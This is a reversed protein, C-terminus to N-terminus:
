HVVVLKGYALCSPGSTLTCTYYGEPLIATNINLSGEGDPIEIETSIQSLINFISLKKHNKYLFGSLDAKASERAPNPYMSLKCATGQLLYEIGTHYLTDCASGELRGTRYHPFNPFDTCLHPMSFKHQVFSCAQGALDPHEIVHIYPTNSTILITSDPALQMIQFIVKGLYYYTSDWVGILTKSAPIDNAELDFQFLQYATNYYLFRSNPSFALTGGNDYYPTLVFGLDQYDYLLGTCRDFVYLDIKVSDELAFWKCSAYYNGDPSFDANGFRSFWDNKGINEQKDLVNIMGPQILFRYFNPRNYEPLLVWWDRGNAHRVANLYGCVLTDQILPVYKETVDGLGNNLQMDVMSFYLANATYEINLSYFFDLKEHLIVFKDQLEPMPLVILGHLVPYYEAYFDSVAGPNLGDGNPMVNHNKDAVQKGNSYFLLHGDWDCVSGIDGKLKLHSNCSFLSFPQQNFDIGCVGYAPQPMTGFGGLWLNDRKTDLFYQTFGQHAIFLIIILTIAKKM